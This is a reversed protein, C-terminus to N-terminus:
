GRTPPRGTMAPAPGIPWDRWDGHFGPNPNELIWRRTEAYQDRIWRELMMREFRLRGHPSHLAPLTGDRALAEVVTRSVALEEAVQRVTLFEVDSVPELM